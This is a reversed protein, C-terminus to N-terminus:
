MKRGCKPCFNKDGSIVNGCYVCFRKKAALRQKKEQALRKKLKSFFVYVFLLVIVGGAAYLIYLIYAYDVEEGIGNAGAKYKIDYRGDGDSDVKLTTVSANQAVTDIKTNPSIEIDNFNRLDSYKGGDDMFGITYNMMGSGNGAIEVDYDAGDKLRLIKVRDDTGSGSSKKNEEFTLTGFSTRTNSNNTDSCLTEGNYAIKVDVPCAIRVYIYKQGNIQDAIDGFFFKLDDADAVEYHCGDSAIKEMLEQASSKTGSMNEFFGLTYIYIGEDKIRDAYETLEDGLKGSNPEGDSMLVIIKKKANSEDLMKRAKALGAEINTGGGDDIANTKSKLRSEDVSFDSLIEAENDYSVVGISADEKLITTIFNSSAKKTEEIPKGSMSGSVDLVLVIDREDSTERRVSNSNTKRVAAQVAAAADVMYYTGNDANRRSLVPQTATDKIIKKVEGSSMNQNVSWTLAAVGSVIPAAMSTGTDYGYSGDRGGTKITSFVNVGPACVDISSGYNSFTSLQYYGNKKKEDVAAVVMFSDMIDDVTIKKDFKEGRSKMDEFVEAVLQEDIGCFWGHYEKAEVGKNWSNGNGAAQVILFDTDYSDLFEALLEVSFRASEASAERTSAANTYEKGSSMNIVKCENRVCINIGAMLSSVAVNRKKQKSTQYCDVGYLSVNRLIGSIGRGNDVTAGIVGAVHTGHNEASNVDSNLVNINLDEHATDFGNDVVGVRINSFSDCKDWASLVKVAEFWWNTGSPNNEDWDVDSAGQFTDGWPDNPIEETEMSMVKDVVANKVIDNNKILELCITELADKDAAAVEIQYQNLGELKGVVTGGIGSVVANIEEDSATKRFYVLVMNNVYGFTKDENEYVINEDKPVYSGGVTQTANIPESNNVIQRTVVDFAPIHVIENYSMLFAAVAGVAFICLVAIVVRLLRRKFRKRFPMNKVAAAKEAKKNKRLAKGHEKAAAKIEKKPLSKDCNPCLGTKEDLMQGCKKCFRQM